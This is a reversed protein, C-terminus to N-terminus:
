EGANVTPIHERTEALNRKVATLKKWRRSERM